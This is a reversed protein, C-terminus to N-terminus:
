LFSILADKKGMRLQKEVAGKEEETLPSYVRSDKEVMAYRGAVLYVEKGSEKLVTIRNLSDKETYFYLPTSDYKGLEQKSIRKKEAGPKRTASEAQALKQVEIWVITVSWASNTVTSDDLLARKNSTLGVKASSLFLYTQAKPSRM